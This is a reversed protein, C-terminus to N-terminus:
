RFDFVEQKLRKVTTACHKEEIDIGIAHRNLKKAALLTTGSGMFPDFILGPTRILITQYLKVPKQTIHYRGEKYNTQPRLAEIVTQFWIGKGVALGKPDGKKFFQILEHRWSWRKEHLQSSYGNRAWWILHQIFVFGSKEIIPKAVYINKDPQSIYLYGNEIRHSIEQSILRFWDWYVKPDRRDNTAVGYNKGVNYPPDTLIVDVPPMLAMIKLCDGCYITAWDDRYYLYDKLKM